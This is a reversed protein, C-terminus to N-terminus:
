RYATPEGIREALQHLRAWAKRAPSGSQGRKEIATDDGYTGSLVVTVGDESRVQASVVMDDVPGFTDSGSKPATTLTRLTADSEALTFGADQLAQAAARYAETPSGEYTVVVQSTGISAGADDVGATEKPGACGVLLLLFPFLQLFPRM